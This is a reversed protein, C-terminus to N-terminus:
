RSLLDHLVVQTHLRAALVDKGHVQVGKNWPHVDEVKLHSAHKFM